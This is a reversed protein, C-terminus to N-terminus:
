LADLLPDDFSVSAACNIIIETEATVMARDTASIGLKDIVLDGAIPM